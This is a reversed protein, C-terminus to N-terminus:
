KKKKEEKLIEDVVETKFDDGYKKLLWSLFVETGEETLMDDGNTLEVKRFSKEPEGKLSTLFKDKLNMNNLNTILKQCKMHKKNREVCNGGCEYKWRGDLDWHSHTGDKNEVLFGTHKKEGLSGLNWYKILKM